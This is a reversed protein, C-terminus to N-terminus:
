QQLINCCQQLINCFHQLFTAFHQLFTTVHQSKDYFTAFINCFTAFHKLELCVNQCREPTLLAVVGACPSTSQLPEFECVPSFGKTHFCHLYEEPRRSSNFYWMSECEPCFGKAQLMTHCINLNQIYEFIKSYSYENTDLVGTEKYVGWSFFSHM